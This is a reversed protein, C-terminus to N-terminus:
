QKKMAKWSEEFFRAHYQHFPMSFGQLARCAHSVRRLRVAGGGQGAGGGEARARVERDRFLVLFVGKKVIKWAKEGTVRM